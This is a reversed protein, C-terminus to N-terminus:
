RLQGRQAPASAPEVLQPSSFLWVADATPGLNAGKMRLAVQGAAGPVIQALRQSDSVPQYTPTSLIVFSAADVVALVGRPTATGFTATSTYACVLRNEVPLPRCGGGPVNVQGLAALDPARFVRKGAVLGQPSWDLSAPGTAPSTAPGALARDEQLGQPLVALRRLRSGTALDDNATYLFQGDRDFALLSAAPLPPATGPQLVGARLLAVTGYRPAPQPGVAASVAVLDADLPSVALQEAVWPGQPRDAPLRVRWLEALDPLRLKVLDGTANLGAYLASGDASLALPGPESGLAAAPYTVIGTVPDVAAIRNGHQPVSGPVSAYYRNRQADFVLANHPLAVKVVTGDPDPTFPPSGGVRGGALVLSYAPELAEGRADVVSREARVLGLGPAWWTDENTTVTTVPQDARSPQFTLVVRNRFHAVDWLVGGPLLVAELALLSQSMELRYSEAIGDGDDDRGWGGQRILRRTSGAPHFPEPYELVDGVARNVEDPVTGALPQVAVIGEATRRWTFRQARGPRVESIVASTGSAATVTRTATSDPFAIGDQYNYIWVDGTGAPFYRRDRLDLRPGPPVIDESLAPLAARPGAAPSDDSGSCAGLLAAAAAWGMLCCRYVSM